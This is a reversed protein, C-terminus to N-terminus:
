EEAPAAAPAKKAEIEAKAAAAAELHGKITEVVPALAEPVEIAGSVIMEYFYQGVQKMAEDAAKKESAAKAQLKGTDIADAGKEAAANALEAGKTAAEKAVNKLNDLFAM